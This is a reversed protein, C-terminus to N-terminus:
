ARFRSREDGPIGGNLGLTYLNVRRGSLDNHIRLAKECTSYDALARVHAISTTAGIRRAKKGLEPHPMSCPTSCWFGSRWSPSKAPWTRVQWRNLVPEAVGNVRTGRKVGKSSGSGESRGSAQNGISCGNNTVRRKIRTEVSNKPYSEIRGSATLLVLRVPIHSNREVTM